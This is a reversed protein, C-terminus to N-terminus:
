IGMVCVQFGMYNLMDPTDKKGPDTEPLLKVDAYTSVLPM